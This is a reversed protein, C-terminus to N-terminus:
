FIEIAENYFRNHYLLINDLIFGQKSVLKLRQGNDFPSNLHRVATNYIQYTTLEAVVEEAKHKVYCRKTLQTENEYDWTVSYKNLQSLEVERDQVFVLILLLNIM